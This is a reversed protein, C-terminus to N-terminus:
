RPCSFVTGLSRAPSVTAGVEIRGPTLPVLRIGFWTKGAWARRRALTRIPEKARAVTAPDYLTVACRDVRMTVRFEVDGIRVGDWDDEAFAPFGETVLNPRFRAADLPLVGGPDTGDAQATEAIWEALQRLSETTVLHVPADWAFSTVDGPRGGNEPVVPRTVGPPLRILRLDGGMVDSVWDSAEAPGALAHTLGPFDVAILPGCEEPQAKMDPRGDARLILGGDETAEARIALSRPNEGLWPHRGAADVIAWRRDGRLGWVDLWVSSLRVGGASKLPYIRIDALRADVVEM